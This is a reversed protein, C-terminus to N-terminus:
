FILNPLAFKYVKREKEFRHAFKAAMKFGLTVDLYAIAGHAEDLRLV